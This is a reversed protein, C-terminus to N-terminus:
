TMPKLFVGFSFQGGAVGFSVLAAGIVVFWGYFVKNQKLLM